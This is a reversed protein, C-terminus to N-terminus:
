VWSIPTECTFASFDCCVLNPFTRTTSVRGCGCLSSRPNWILGGSFSCSSKCNEDSSSCFFRLLGSNPIQTSFMTSGATSSAAEGCSSASSDGGGSYSAVLLSSQNWRPINAAYRTCGYQKLKQPKAECEFALRLIKHMTGKGLCM